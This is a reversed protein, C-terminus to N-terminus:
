GVAPLVKGGAEVSKADVLVVALVCPATGRYIWNQITGRQVMVDTAKPHVTSADLEM